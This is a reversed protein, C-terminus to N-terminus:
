PHDVRLSSDLWISGGQERLQRCWGRFVDQEPFCLKRGLDARVIVCSGASDLETMTGNLEAHYPSENTFNVGNKVFAWRDYFRTPPHQHMVM